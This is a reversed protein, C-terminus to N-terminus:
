RKRGLERARKERYGSSDFDYGAKKPLDSLPV